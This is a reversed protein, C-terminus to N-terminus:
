AVLRLGSKKLIASSMLVDHQRCATGVIDAIINVKNDVESRNSGHVMAFLNYPWQPLHRPRLYCHSVFDLQGILEGLSEVQDDAIDWVTMGNSQLGLRYHNPVVGIRRIVGCALMNKLGNIVDDEDCNLSSAIEAYPTPGPPLGSQSHQILRREFDSIATGQKSATPFSRTDVRDYKDIHLWLGVYFEHLKPFNFVRLGTIGEIKKIAKQIGRPTETALVFWMNLEHDRQYNHAVEPLSNVQTAIKGIDAKAVSMAALSLGGGMRDANFLPGFRTLIKSDLLHQICDIVQKESAEFRNAIVAFPRHRLPFNGQYHNIIQRSLEDM